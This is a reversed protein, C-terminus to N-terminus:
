NKLGILKPVTVFQYGKKELSEIIFPLAKVIHSRDAHRILRDGDHLLIISGNETGKLVYNAIQEPRIEKGGNNGTVSWEITLYGMQKAASYIWKNDVGYPSRFLYPRVGAFRMIDQETRKIQYKFQTKSEFLLYPHSYTHNGIVHGEEAIRKITLPYSEVNKGLVFFTAKVNYKKLIDLIESTYPENPGDDFTLAIKPESQDGHWYVLDDLNTRNNMNAYSVSAVFFLVIGSLVM